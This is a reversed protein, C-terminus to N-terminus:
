HSTATDDIELMKAVAAAEFGWYGFCVDHWSNHTNHWYTFRM